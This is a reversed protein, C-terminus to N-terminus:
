RDGEARVACETSCYPAHEDNPRAGGCWICPDPDADDEEAPAPEDAAAARRARREAAEAIRQKENEFTPQVPNIAGGEVGRPGILDYETWNGTEWRACERGDVTSTVILVSPHEPDQRATTYGGYITEGFPWQRVRVSTLRPLPKATAPTAATNKM